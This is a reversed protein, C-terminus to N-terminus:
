SKVELKKGTEAVIKWRKTKSIPRTEVIKVKDGIHTENKEDHVYYKTNRKIVKGYLQHRITWEVMVIRTKNMGDSIVVGTKTKRM